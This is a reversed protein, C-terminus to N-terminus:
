EYFFGNELFQKIEANESATLTTAVDGDRVINYGPLTSIQRTQMLPRGNHTVDEDAVYAFTCDLYKRWKYCALGSAGGMSRNAGTMSQAASTIGNAAGVAAGIMPAAAGGSAVVAAVGAVAGTANALASIPQMGSQSLPIDVGVMASSFAVNTANGSADQGGVVLLATGTIGDITAACVLTVTDLMMSPDLELCGFPQFILQYRSFPALNMYKGRTGALPHKPVSCTWAMDLKVCDNALKYGQVGMEHYGIKINVATGQTPMTCPFWKCSAFYQLPDFFEKALSSGIEDALDALWGGSETVTDAYMYNKLANFQAQTLMYYCVGGGAAEQGNHVGLIYCGNATTTAFDANVANLTNTNDNIVSAAVPYLNDVIQGDYASASRLVYLSANGIETRATALVDTTMVAQWLRNEIWSWEQIWYYRGFDPIYAMNYTPATQTGLDVRIVPNFVASNSKLVCAFTTGGTPRATSNERKSYKYFTVNFM